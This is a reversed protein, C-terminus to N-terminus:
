DTALEMLANRAMDGLENDNSTNGSISSPHLKEKTYKACKLTTGSILM